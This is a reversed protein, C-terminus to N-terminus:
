RHLPGPDRMIANSAQERLCSARHSVDADGVLGTFPARDPNAAVRWDGHRCGYGPTASGSAAGWECTISAHVVSVFSSTHGKNLQEVEVDRM